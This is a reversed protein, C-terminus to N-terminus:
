IGLALKTRVEDLMKSKKEFITDELQQRDQEIYAYVKDLILDYAKPHLQETFSFRTNTVQIGRDKLLVHYHKQQNIIFFKDTLTTMKFETKPHALLDEVIDIFQQEQETPKYAFLKKFM